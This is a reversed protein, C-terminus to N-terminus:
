KKRIEKQFDIPQVHIFRMGEYDVPVYTGNIGTGDRAQIMLHHTGTTRYLIQAINVNAFWEHIRQLTENNADKDLTLVLQPVV